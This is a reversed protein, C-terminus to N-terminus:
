NRTFYQVLMITLTTFLTSAVVKLLTPFFLVINSAEIFLLTAHHVLTLILVYYFFNRAGMEHISFVLRNEFGRQDTQLRIVLPRIYAMLVTAAAHMGMTNYFVDILLGVGFALLLTATQGLEVPLLLICAVYIFCFAVDFLVLNRVIIIQLTLYLVFLFITNLIERLTM